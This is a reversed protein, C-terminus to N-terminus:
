NGPQSNGVRKDIGLFGRLGTWLRAIGGRPAPSKEPQKQTDQDLAARLRESLATSRQRVIDRMATDLTPSNQLLLDFSSRELELLESDETATVTASRPEGTLLAQEGFYQGKALEAVQVEQGAPTRASIRVAGSRILYFTRTTEGQGVIREGEAYLNRTVDEALLTLEPNPVPALFDVRRLLDRADTGAARARQDQPVITAAEKAFTIGHRRFQYWISTLVAESVRNLQAYDNTWFSIGYDIADGYTELYVQPAPKPLVGSVGSMAELLVKKVRNPQGAYSVAVHKDVRHMASPACYNVIEGRSMLSNPISVSDNQRTVLRTSRWNIEIVRGEHGHVSVWDGVRFPRDLQLFLGAFVSGLSDQVALGVVISFVASAGLLAGLDGVGFVTRLVIMFGGVYVLIRLIDRFLAPFGTGSRALAAAIGLLALECVLYITLLIYTASFFLALLSEGAGQDYCFAAPGSVLVLALIGLRVRKAGMGDAEEQALSLLAPLAYRVLLALFIATLLFGALAVGLSSIMGHDPSPTRLWATLLVATNM